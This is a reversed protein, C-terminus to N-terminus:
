RKVEHLICGFDYETEVEYVQDETLINLHNVIRECDGHISTPNWQKWWKCTECIKM